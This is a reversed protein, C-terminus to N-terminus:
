NQYKYRIVVIGSGGVGGSGGGHAGGGGGGGSNAGGAGGATGSGTGGNAGANYGAGGQGGNTPHTGGQFSAGGGGGLGGNGNSASHSTSVTASGGGGGSFSKPSGTISTTAGAGGNGGAQPGPLGTGGVATAGGGGGAAHIGGASGPGGNNGQPPSVPPTNGNGITNRLIGGGSGGPLASGQDNGAGGGGTSTITSFVSNSGRDGSGSSVSNVAGGAGVTIPYTQATLTIGTPTALPSATYPGSVDTSHSERFGGAGGGGSVIFGGGGGGAVVLYDCVNPGGSPNTSSNGLSSVVFNSSSTFTHIKYEASTSVTGGTAQLFAGALTSSETTWGRTADTYVLTLSDGIVELAIETTDSNINSSNRATTVNNTGKIRVIVVTDGISPGSPLTVTLTGSSSDCFYGESAVATFSSTKIAQWDTGAVINGSAGLNIATGNITINSNALKANAISGALQANTIGGALRDSAITGPAIKASTITGPAIDAASLEADKIGKSGIKSIPM